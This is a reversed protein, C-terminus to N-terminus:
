LNEKNPNKKFDKCNECDLLNKNPLTCDLDYKNISKGNICSSCIEIYTGIREDIDKGSDDFSNCNHIEEDLLSCSYNTNKLQYKKCRGCKDHSSQNIQDTHIIEMYDIQGQVSKLYEEGNIDLKSKIDTLALQYLNKASELVHSPCGKSHSFFELRHHREILKIILPNM